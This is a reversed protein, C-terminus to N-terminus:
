DIVAAIGQPISLHSKDDTTPLAPPSEAVAMACGEVLKPRRFLFDLASDLLAKFSQARLSDCADFANM